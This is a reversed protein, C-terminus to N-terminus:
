GVVTFQKAAEDPDTLLSDYSGVEHKFTVYMVPGMCAMDNECAIQVAEVANAGAAMAGLAIDGGAGITDYEVNRLTAFGGTMLWVGGDKGALIITSDEDVAHLKEIDKYFTSPNKHDDQIEKRWELYAVIHLFKGSLSILYKGTNYVKRAIPRMEGGWAEGSDAALVGNRYAVVTM